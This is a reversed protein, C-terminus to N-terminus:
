GHVIEKEPMSKMLLSEIDRYRDAPFLFSAKDGVATQKQYLFLKLKRNRLEIRDINTYSISFNKQNSALIAEPDIGETMEVAKKKNISDMMVMGLVGGALFAVTNGGVYQGVVKDKTFILNYQQDILGHLTMCNLIGLTTGESSHHMHAHPPVQHEKLYKQLCADHVAQTKETDLWTYRVALLGIEKGCYECHTM